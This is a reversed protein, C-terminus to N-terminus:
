DRFRVPLKGGPGSYYLEMQKVKHKGELPFLLFGSTEGTIKTEPLVAKRLLDLLPNEEGSQKKAAAPTAAGASLEFGAPGALQSPTYPTSRQGDKDSFLVFDDRRLPLEKDQLPTVTVRIAVIGEDLKAGLAREVAARDLYAAAQIRLARNEAQGQPPGKDDAALAAAGFVSCALM